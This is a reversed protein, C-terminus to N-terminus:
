RKKLFFILKIIMIVIAIPLLFFILTPFVWGVTVYHEMELYYICFAYLFQYPLTKAILKIYGEFQKPKQGESFYGVFLIALPIALSYVYFM